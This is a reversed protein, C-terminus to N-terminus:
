VSASAQVPEWYAPGCDNEELFKYRAARRDEHLRIDPASRDEFRYPLVARLQETHEFVTRVVWPRTYMAERTAEKPRQFGKSSPFVIDGEVPIGLFMLFDRYDDKLREVRIIHDAVCVGNLSYVDFDQPWRGDSVFRKFRPAVPREPRRNGKWFFSSIAKEWPNRETCVVDYDVIDEGYIRLADCYRSHNQLEIMEGSNINVFRPNEVRAVCDVRQTEERPRLKTIMDQPGCYRSIALEISSGATKGPKVYVFNHKHSVIM